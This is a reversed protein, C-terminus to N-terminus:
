CVGLQFIFKNKPQHFITHGHSEIQDIKKIKKQKTFQNCLQGLFKGYRFHLELLSEGSLLHASSLKNKWEPSYSFTQSAEISYDWIKKKLNFKCYALDVGDLSTGSMISIVKYKRVKRVKM